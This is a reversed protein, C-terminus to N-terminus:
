AREALNVFPSVTDGANAPTLPANWMPQGDVRYIFRFVTEGELFRVHISSASQMGGKEIMQYAMPDILWIDGVDGVNDCSEHVFAPRGFITGYPAASAGGPPLYVPVGGTGVDLTMTMLQPLADQSHFWIASAQSRAWLRAWMKVINEYVITDATQGTEKAVTVVANSGELGLPQGAGTGNFIADEVGWRIEEPMIRMVYSELTQTDQLQEETVYVAAAAKGLNLQMKRFTPASATVSSNEAMWYFRVGGRRSGAERSTEAEAFYTMGNANPGIPDMAVRSLLQGSEYVRALISTQRDSGVLFGGAQPLSEGIGTPAAKGFSKIGQAAAPLSGVFDDGMAGAVSFGGENSQDNSRLARLRDDMVGDAAGKVSMLFEGFSKFPNRKNAKDAEDKIVTVHGVGNTAPADLKAKLEDREATIADLEGDDEDPELAMVSKLAKAENTYKEALDLDGDAIAKKAAAILQEFNM